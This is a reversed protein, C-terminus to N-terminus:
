MNQPMFMFSLTKRMGEETYGNEEFCEKSMEIVEDISECKLYKALKNEYKKGGMAENILAAIDTFVFSHNRLGPFFAFNCGACVNVVYDAGTRAVKEILTQGLQQGIPPYTALAGGGCCINQEESGEMKVLKLGPIAKLLEMPSGSEKGFRALQCSQHLTATKNLPETLDIKELHDLLFQAYFHTEFSIDLFSPYVETFQRYCAPCVLIVRKPSFAKLGEILERFKDEGERPKGALPFLPAGCCLEGGEIATYNLGMKDLVDLLAFIKDPFVNAACGLFLVNEVKEPKSPVSRLWRIESPKIQLSHLARGIAHQDPPSQGPPCFNMAEPPKKGSKTLAIKAAENILLPDLGQPCVNLCNGCGSCSFVKFYADESVVGDTLLALVKKMIEKPDKDGIPTMKITPCSGLCEGCLVCEEIIRNTIDNYKEELSNQKKDTTM